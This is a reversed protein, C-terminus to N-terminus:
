ANEEAGEEPGQVAGLQLVVVVYVDVLAFSFFVFNIAFLLLL